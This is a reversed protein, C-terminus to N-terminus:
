RRARAAKIREELRENPVERHVRILEDASIGTVEVLRMLLPSSPFRHGNEIRNIIWRSCGIEAALDAQSLRYTDRYRALPHLVQSTDLM